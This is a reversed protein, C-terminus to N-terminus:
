KGEQEKLTGVIELTCYQECKSCISDNGIDYPLKEIFRYHCNMCEIIIKDKKSM